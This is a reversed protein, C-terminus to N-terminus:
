TVRETGTSKCLAREQEKNKIYKHGEYGKSFAETWYAQFPPPPRGIARWNRPAVEGCVPCPAESVNEYRAQFVQQEGHRTCIVEYIPM